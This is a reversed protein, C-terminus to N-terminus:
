ERRRRFFRIGAGATLAMAILASISPEPVPTVTGTVQFIPASTTTTTGGALTMNSLTTLDLTNQNTSRWRGILGSSSGTFITIASNSASTTPAAAWLYAGQQGSTTNGYVLWYRYGSGLSIPAAPTFTTNTFSTTSTSTATGLDSIFTTPANSNTPSSFIGALWTNGPVTNAKMMFTVSEVTMDAGVLDFMVADFSASAGSSKNIQSPSASALTDILVAAHLNATCSLFLVAICLAVRQLSDYTQKSEAQTQLRPRISFLTTGSPM